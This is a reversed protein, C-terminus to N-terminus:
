QPCASQPSDIRYSPEGIYERTNLVAGDLPEFLQQRMFPLRLISIVQRPLNPIGSYSFRPPASGGGEQLSDRWEGRLPFRWLHTCSEIKRAICYTRDTGGQISACEYYALNFIYDRLESRSAPRYYRYHRPLRHWLRFYRLDQSSSELYIIGDSTKDIIGYLSNVAPCRRDSRHFLYLAGSLLEDQATSQNRRKM